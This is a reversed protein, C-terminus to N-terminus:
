LHHYLICATQRSNISALTDQQDKNDTTLMMFDVMAKISAVPTKIDHSLEAIMEKRSKVTVEEHLRSAKLEECMIDFSKTFAGFINGKDMELPTELNGAAVSGAFGKLRGFPEVVRKKLYIFLGVSVTLM